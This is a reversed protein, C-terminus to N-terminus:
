ATPLSRWSWGGSRTWTLVPHYGGTIWLHTAAFGDGPVYDPVYGDQSLLRAFLEFGSGYHHVGVALHRETVGQHDRLKGLKSAVRKDVLM